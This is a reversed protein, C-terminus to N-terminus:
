GQFPTVFHGLGEGVNQNVNDPARFLPTRENSIVRARSQMAIHSANQFVNFRGRQDDIGNGVMNM